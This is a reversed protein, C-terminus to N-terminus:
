RTVTINQLGECPDRQWGNYNINRTVSISVASVRGTSDFDFRGRVTATYGDDQQKKESVREHSEGGVAGSRDITDNSLLFRGSMSPANNKNYEKSGDPAYNGKMWELADASNFSGGNYRLETIVGSGDDGNNKVEYDLLIVGYPNGYDEYGVTMNKDDSVHLLKKLDAKTMGLFKKGLNTLAERDVIVREDNDVHKLGESSVQGYEAIAGTYGGKLRVVVQTFVTKISNSMGVSGLLFGLGLVFAVIVAYEAVGRGKQGFIKSM